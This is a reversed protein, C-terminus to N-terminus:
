LRKGGHLMARKENYRMKLIIQEELNIGYAECFDMVRIVTDAMESPVGEPKHVGADDVSFWEELGRERYAELAESIESHMLAFDDGVTRETPPLQTHPTVKQRWGKSQAWSHIQAQLVPISFDM